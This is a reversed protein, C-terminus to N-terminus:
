AGRYEGFVASDATGECLVSGNSTDTLLNSSWHSSVAHNSLVEVGISSNTTGELSHGLLILLM